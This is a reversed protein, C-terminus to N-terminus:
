RPGGASSLERGPKPAKPGFFDFSALRPGSASAASASPGLRLGGPPTLQLGRFIPYGLLIISGWLFAPVWFRSPVWFSPVWFPAVWFSPVGVWGGARLEAWGVGQRRNESCAARGHQGPWSAGGERNKKESDGSFVDGAGTKKEFLFSKPHEKPGRKLVKARSKKKESASCPRQRTGVRSTDAWAPPPPTRRKPNPGWFPPINRLPNRKLVWRFLKGTSLLPTPFSGNPSERFPFWLPRNSEGPRERRGQQSGPIAVLAVCSKSSGRDITSSSGREIPSM